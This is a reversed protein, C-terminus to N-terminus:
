MTPPPAHRALGNVVPGLHTATNGTANGSGGMSHQQSSTPCRLQWGRLAPVAVISCRTTRSAFFFSTTNRVAPMPTTNITKDNHLAFTNVLSHMQVGVGAVVASRWLGFRLLSCLNGIPFCVLCTSQVRHPRGYTCMNHSSTSYRTPGTQMINAVQNACSPMCGGPCAHSINPLYTLTRTIPHTAGRRNHLQPRPM